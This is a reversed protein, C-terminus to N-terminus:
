LSKGSCRVEHTERSDIIFRRNEANAFDGELLEKCWLGTKRVLKQSKDLIRIGTGIWFM